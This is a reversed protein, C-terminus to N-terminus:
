DQYLQAFLPSLHGGGGQGLIQLPTPAPYACGDFGVPELLQTLPNFYFRQNHWAVGHYAQFIDCAAYYGALRELDFIAHAPQRGTQFQRLLLYAQRLLATDAESSAFHDIEASHMNRNLQYSGSYDYHNLQLQREVGDWFASEDFRLIPGARREQTELLHTEFHEEVAYLGLSKGNLLLEAFDYDPTLVGHYQWFQHLLWENLYYRAAPTQLSFVQLQQWNQSPDLEIRFSWKEEILHDLLDGKLRIKAPIPVASYEPRFAGKRWGKQEAKILGNRLATERQTRFFALDSAALDLHIKPAQAEEQKLLVPQISLDDFYSINRGNNVVYIHIYDLSDNPVQFILQFREWYDDRREVPYDATQYFAGKGVGQVVLKGKDLHNAYHWVSAQYFTGPPLDKLRLSFGFQLKWGPTIKSAYQGSFAVDDSQSAGGRFLSGQGLFYEGQRQEADCFYSPNDAAPAQHHEVRLMFGLLLLLLLVPLWRRPWRPWKKPKTDRLIM